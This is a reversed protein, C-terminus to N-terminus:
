YTQVSTSGEVIDTPPYFNTGDYVCGPFVNVPGDLIVFTTQNDYLESVDSKVGMVTHVVGNRVAVVMTSSTVDRNPDNITSAVLELPTGLNPVNPLSM